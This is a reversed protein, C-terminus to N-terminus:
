CVLQKVSTSPQGTIYLTINMSEVSLGIHHCGRQRETQQQQLTEVNLGKSLMVDKSCPPINITGCRSHFPVETKATEDSSENKIFLHYQVGKDSSYRYMYLQESKNLYVHVGIRVQQPVYAHFYICFSLGYFSVDDKNLSFDIIIDKDHYRLM